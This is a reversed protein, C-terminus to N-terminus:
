VKSDLLQYTKLPGFPIQVWSFLPTFGSDVEIDNPSQSGVWVCIAKIEKNFNFNIRNITEWFISPKNKFAFMRRRCIASSWPFKKKSSHVWHLDRNMRDVGLGVIARLTESLTHRLFDLGQRPNKDSVIRSQSWSKGLSSNLYAFLYERSHSKAMQKPEVRWISGAPERGRSECFSFLPRSTITLKCGVFNSLRASRTMWSKTSLTIVIRQLVRLMVILLYSGLESGVFPEFVPDSHLRQGCIKVNIQIKSKIKM